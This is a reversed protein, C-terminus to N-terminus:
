QSIVVARSTDMQAANPIRHRGPTILFAKDSNDPGTDTKSLEVYANVMTAFPPVLGGYTELGSVGLQVKLSAGPV